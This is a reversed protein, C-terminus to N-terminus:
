DLKALATFLMASMEETVIQLEPHAITRNSLKPEMAAVVRHDGKDSVTINCPM